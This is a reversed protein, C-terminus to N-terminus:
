DERLIRRMATRATDVDYGLRLLAAILKQQGARDDPVTRYKKRIVAMCAEEFDVDATVEMAAHISEASFGCARLDERIRRPGWLKRLDQSVRLRATDDEHIYGKESLYAAASEAVSREAGKSILKDVLRKASQDGYSLLRMGRMVAACLRGAELVSEATASTIGGVRLGMEAYQEVLMHVQLRENPPSAGADEESIIRPISLIILVTEGNGEPSISRISYADDPLNEESVADSIVPEAAGSLSIPLDRPDLKRKSTQKTRKPAPTKPPLSGARSACSGEIGTRRDGHEDSGVPDCVQPARDFPAHYTPDGNASAEHTRTRKTSAPRTPSEDALEDVLRVARSVRSKPLTYLEDEADTIGTNGYSVDADFADCLDEACAYENRRPPKKRSLM